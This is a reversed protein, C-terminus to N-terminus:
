GGMEGGKSGTNLVGDTTARTMLPDRGHGRAQAELGRAEAPPLRRQRRVGRHPVARGRPDSLCAPGGCLCRIDIVHRSVRPVSADAHHSSVQNLERQWRPTPTQMAVVVAEAPLTTVPDDEVALACAYPRAVM